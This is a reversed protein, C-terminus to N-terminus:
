IQFIEKILALMRFLFLFNLKEILDEQTIFLLWLYLFYMNKQSFFFYKNINRNKYLFFDTLLLQQRKKKKREKEFLWFHKDFCLFMWKHFSVVKKIIFGQLVWELKIGFYDLKFIIIGHLFLSLSYYSYFKHYNDLTIKHRLTPSDYKCKKQM